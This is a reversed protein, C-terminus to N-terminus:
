IKDSGASSGFLAAPTPGVETVDTTGLSFSSGSSGAPALEVEPQQRTMTRVVLVPVAMILTTLPVALSSDNAVLGVTGLVTLGALVAVTPTHQDAAPALVSPWMRRGAAKRAQFWAYAGAVALVTLVTGWGALELSGFSAQWRRTFQTFFFQWSGDLAIDALRALHTHAADPRAADIFAFVLVTTATVASLVAVERWQVRRGALVLATVGFAPILSVVGGVDAGFMPMGDVLVVVVLVVSAGWLGRRGYREVLLAALLIAAAGYLAYALNGLGTFRGAVAMSYGFVTNMQLRAGTLVDGTVVLVTASVALLVGLGQRYREAAMSGAAVLVASGIMVLSHGAVSAHAVGLGGALFSGPVAGLVGFAVACTVTGTWDPLRERFIAAGSVAVLAVVLATVATPLFSDRFSAADASDVLYSLRDGGVASVHFSRGEVETPYEEGLLTMITPAVDALHVYGDRRTTASRLLGGDIGPAELAVLGLEPSATPSVPSVVLVADRDPDVEALLQGLLRDAAALADERLARGQGPTSRGSYARARALDSAEVLVVERDDVGWVEGFAAMVAADDLRRGFAADPDDQLLSRGVKGAPIIGDPRMLATAASRQYYGDPPREDDAFGEVADANAVVATSVGVAALTEGLLGVEAGFASRENVDRAAGSALYAIGKPVYGLRRELIDATPVGGYQDEPDVAVATDVSPAVARTGAGITLYADTIGANRRGIRTSMDGIAGGEAFQELNPLDYRGLDEWGVGPLSVVLVRDVPEEGPTEASVGSGTVLVVAAVLLMGRGMRSMVLSM